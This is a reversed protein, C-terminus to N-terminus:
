SDIFIKIDSKYLSEFLCIILIFINMKVEIEKNDIYM